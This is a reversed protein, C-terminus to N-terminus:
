LVISKLIKWFRGLNFNRNLRPELRPFKLHTLTRAIREADTGTNADGRNLASSIGRIFHLRDEKSGVIRNGRMDTRTRDIRPQESYGGGHIGVMGFVEDGVKFRTAQNMRRGIREGPQRGPLPQEPM